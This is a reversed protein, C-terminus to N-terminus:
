EFDEITKRVRPPIMWKTQATIVFAGKGRIVSIFYLGSPGGRIEGLEKKDGKTLWFLHLVNESSNKFDNAIQLNLRANRMSGFDDPWLYRYMKRTTTSIYIPKQGKPDFVKEVMEFGAFKDM